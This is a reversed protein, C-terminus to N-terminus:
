VKLFISQGSPFHLLNEPKDLLFENVTEVLGEYGWGYDDFYVFAGPVLLEYYYELAAREAIHGNM